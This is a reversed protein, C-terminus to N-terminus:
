RRWDYDHPGAFGEHYEHHGGWYHHDGYYGHGYDDYDGPLIVCGGLLAVILAAILYRM